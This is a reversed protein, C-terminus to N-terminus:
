YHYEQYRDETMTKSDHCSKCLSQWNNKNWFLKQDGRHPIIHDVVTAPVIKGKRLCRVCMPHSALYLKSAKQWSRNYGKEKTSKAEGIHLPAHEECYQTGYPVLRGCGPHKCPTNPRYPM